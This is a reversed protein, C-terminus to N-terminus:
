QLSSWVGALPPLQLFATNTSDVAYAPIKIGTESIQIKDQVGGQVGRDSRIDHYNVASKTLFEPHITFETVFYSRAEDTYFVPAASGNTELSRFMKPVGTGRGETFDLEKLYEGIRRNRYRRTVMIGKKVDDLSISPDVGPHSVIRITDPNIRVEIPKRIEYSRHYVANVLAEEIAEHPYNFFRKAEAQGPIKLVKEAIFNNKLYRLVDRIQQDLPGKFIEEQIEDGGEGDPFHVVDIQAYPFFRELQDNFFLLGVNRPKLYENGGDVIAMQRCLADFPANRSGELLGSGIEKLFSQLLPLKIDEITANHNTRDDFPV